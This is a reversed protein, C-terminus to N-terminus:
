FGWSHTWYTITWADPYLWHCRQENFHESHLRCLCHHALPSDYWSFPYIRENPLVRVEAYENEGERVEREKVWEQYCTRLAVPGTLGEPQANYAEDLQHVKIFDLPRLWFPHEPTTSVMFANPISHAYNDDGMHGLYAIPIPPPKHHTLIPIHEQLPGLAVLDLDAYVGGFRHMYMNRVMDARYIERPLADYSKLYQPYYTEVLKRNDADRWLVYVWTDDMTQRWQKSWRDFHEPLPGDKWSQHLIRPGPNEGNALMEMLRSASIIKAAGANPLKHTRHAGNGGAHELKTINEASPVGAEEIVQLCKEFPDVPAPPPPAEPEKYADKSLFWFILIGLLFTPLLCYRVVFRRKGGPKRMWSPGNQSTLERYSARGNNNNGNGNVFSPLMRSPRVYAGFSNSM